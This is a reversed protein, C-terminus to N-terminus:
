TGGYGGAPNGSGDLEGGGVGGGGGSGDNLNRTGSGQIGILGCGGNDWNVVCEEAVRIADGAFPSDPNQKAFRKLVLEDGSLVAKAFTVADATVQGTFIVGVSALIALISTKSM